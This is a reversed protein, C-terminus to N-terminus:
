EEIFYQMPEPLYGGYYLYWKGNIKVMEFTTEGFGEHYKCTVLDYEELKINCNYESNIQNQKNLLEDSDVKNEHTIDFSIDGVKNHFERASETSLTPLSKQIFSPYCEEIKNINSNNIAKSLEKFLDNTTKYGSSNKLILIFIIAGICLLIIIGIIISTKKKNKM